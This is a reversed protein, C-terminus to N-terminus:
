DFVWGFRTPLGFGDVHRRPYLRANAVERARRESIYGPLPVFRYFCILSWALKLIPAVVKWTLGLFLLLTVFPYIVLAKGLEMKEAKRAEKLTAFFFRLKLRLAADFVANFLRKRRGALLDIDM